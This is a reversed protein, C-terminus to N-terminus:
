VVEVDSVKRMTIESKSNISKIQWGSLIDGVSLLPGGDPDIGIIKTGSKNYLFRFYKAQDDFRWKGNKQEILKITKYYRNPLLISKM